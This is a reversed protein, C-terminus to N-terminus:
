EPMFHACTEYDDESMMNQQFSACNSDPLDTATALPHPGMSADYDIRAQPDYFDRSSGFAGSEISSPVGLLETLIIQTLWGLATASDWNGAGIRIELNNFTSTRCLLADENSGTGIDDISTCVRPQPNFTPLKARLCGSYYPNTIAMSSTGASSEVQATAAQFQFWLVVHLVATLPAALLQATSIIINNRRLM